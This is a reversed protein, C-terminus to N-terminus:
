NKLWRQGSLPVPDIPCPRDAMQEALQRASGCALTWGHAGHGLNLWVGAQPAAGVIPPGEPLMPRAGRWIQASQREVAYPFWRDVADYLPALTAERETSHATTPLRAQGLEFGGTVRLRRGLRTLTVGASADVVASRLAAGDERLAFTVAHGWVPRLPLRMGAQAALTPAAAGTCIVVANFPQETHDPLLETAAFDDPAAHASRSRRGSALTDLELGDPGSQLRRVTVGFRFRVGHRRVAIDRLQHAFERCNGVGDDALHLGGVLAAQRGLGPEIEQCRGTSIEEVAHGLERLLQAHQHAAKLEEDSRLLVLVGRCQEHNLGLERVLTAQRRQSLQALTSMVRVDDTQPKQSARWWRWLWEYQSWDTSLNWRLAAEHRWLGRFLWRRLGPAAAPSVLGAALLGAHAFSAEEAVSERQEFVVVDHGDRGLEYATTIGAIGAGIVAIRM